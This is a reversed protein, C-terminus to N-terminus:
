STPARPWGPTILPQAPGTVAGDSPTGVFARIDGIAEALGCRKVPAGEPFATLLRSPTAGELIVFCGRDQRGRILRGFAQKLRFRTILDDYGKGFRARRAKHLITPKPWPVKDFVVLRLSRGPVDVGDRLADTGLLCANEEARFLDVLAGTDLRDVHQAYLTLGADALPTVIRSATDRLARVATFLGLAGGGSALFLERYAAALAEPDRRPVDKVIFIRAQEDYRFPSGFSARRAPQALHGAGTRVEASAWHDDAAGGVDRLTASTILAGHAPELVEAALPVTPDIWHRALGVDADRGDERLIELWDVFETPVEGNELTELMAIWAPLIGRARRELGRAAADLRAKTYPELTATKDNMAKRLHGALRMLPDALRKLGRALGSVAAALDEGMPQVEAELSYFAEGGESRARVHAYAASLFVEGPGRPGNGIRQQWGESALVSAAAVADELAQQAAEDDAILEKLREEIGRMRSRARGEPGRIWRRLEAMERGSLRASFGSDAADFLHHGEDFVYRLRRESPTDTTEDEGIWDQAGFDQSAQAIVLAHNAVVIAAHRARRVAHEIFCIRYHPCAAYICEGRRDTVTSLPMFAALFAPFGAGSLDGDTGSQVWRAILALAVSRQGPALATRKAAEEFNLLCLYNERGKRVVAKEAREAPDPWLHAIEQVIQRQLNRTYTSIWLGPGNKEAWVSAPALYGLTKGTGTGAEVLAVRPAGAQERPGFAFTAADAYAAQEPRMEDVLQALRARAEQPEVPQSGPKGPLPADEWAALGRWAELGAIPSGHPAEGACKKLLPAWRWGARELTGIMPALGQRAEQPWGAFQALLADAIAFLSAASAEPTRPVDLGLARCLGPASPVFPQGPRVFAFLELVDFLLPAARLGLRGAVFTGHAVLVDGGEFLPRADHLGIREATGDAHAIAGGPPAPVLGILNELSSAMSAAIM